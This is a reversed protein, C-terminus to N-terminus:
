IEKIEEVLEDMMVARSGKILVVDGEKMVEQLKKGLSEASRGWFLNRGKEWGKKELEERAFVMAPGALFIIDAVEGARRGIERHAEETNTGLEKMDGLAAIRRVDNFKELVELAAETSLPSANYTDDIVMTGKVGAMFTMRHRLPKFQEVAGAAALLNMGGAVGVACASLAAYMIGKGLSKHLRVPVTSGKYQVKFSMGAEELADKRPPLYLPGFAQIDSDESFGYYLIKQRSRSKTANSAIVRKKMARVTADDYNLVATGDKKLASLITAKEDVYEARDKFFELHVPMKGIATVVAVDLRVFSTFHAMDGPRDVAMELVLARPYRMPLVILACARLINGAWLFINRGADTGNIITLPLGIETNFNGTNRRVRGPWRRSFVTFVAEKTSSKGVSGTIGVVFPKHRWLVARSLHKLILVHLNTM